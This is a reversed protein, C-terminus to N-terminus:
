HRPWRLLGILNIREGAEKKQWILLAEAILAAWLFAMRHIGIFYALQTEPETQGSGFMGEIRAYQAVDLGTNTMVMYNIVHGFVCLLFLAVVLLYLFRQLGVGGAKRPTVPNAESRFTFGVMESFLGIVRAAKTPGFGAPGTLLASLAERDARPLVTGGSNQLCQGLKEAFGFQLAREILVCDEKMESQYREALRRLLLNPAGLLRSVPEEEAIARLAKGTLSTPVLRGKQDHGCHPCRTKLAIDNGCFWCKMM